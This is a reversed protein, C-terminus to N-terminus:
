SPLREETAAPLRIGRRLLLLGYLVLPIPALALILASRPTLEVTAGLRNVHIVANGLGHLAAIPWLSGGAMLLTGFVIGLLGAWVLQALVRLIEAGAFVNLAHPVSFLLSSVILSRALGHKRGGWRRLLACLVLGRFVVEEMMGAAFGNAAVLGSLFTDQLNLSLKGTFLLEVAGAAASVVGVVGLVVVPYVVALGYHSWRGWVFGMSRRSVRDLFWFLGILPCLPLASFTSLGTADMATTVAIAV